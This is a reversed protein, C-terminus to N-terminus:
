LPGQVRRNEEAKTSQEAAPCTEGQPEHCNLSANLNSLLAFEGERMMFLRLDIHLQYGGRQGRMDKKRKVPEARCPMVSKSRPLLIQGRQEVIEWM